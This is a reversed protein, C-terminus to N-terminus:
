SHAKGLGAQSLDSGHQIGGVLETVPSVERSPEGNRLGLDWAALEALAVQVLQGYRVLADVQHDARQREGVDEVEGGHHALEDADQPGSTMQHDGVGRVLPRADFGQRVTVEALERVAVIAGIVVQYGSERQAQLNKV